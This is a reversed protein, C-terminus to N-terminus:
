KVQNGDPLTAQIPEEAPNRVVAHANTMLFNSTAGSDLIAWNEINDKNLVVTQLLANVAHQYRKMNYTEQTTTGLKCLWKGPFTNHKASAVHCSNHNWM